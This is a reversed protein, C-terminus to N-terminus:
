ECPYVRTSYLKALNFNLKQKRPWNMCSGLCMMVVKFSVGEITRDRKLCEEIWFSNIISTKRKRKFLRMWVNKMKSVNNTTIGRSFIPIPKFSKVIKEGFRFSVHLQWRSFKNTQFIISRALDHFQYIIIIDLPLVWKEFM